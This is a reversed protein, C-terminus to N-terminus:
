SEDKHQFCFCRPSHLGKGLPCIHSLPRFQQLKYPQVPQAWNAPPMHCPRPQAPSSAPSPSSAPHRTLQKLRQTHTAHKNPLWPLRLVNAQKGKAHAAPCPPPPPSYPPPSFSYFYMYYHMSNKRKAASEASKGHKKKHLKGPLRRSTIKNNVQAFVCTCM